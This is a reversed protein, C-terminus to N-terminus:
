STLKQGTVIHSESEYDTILLLGDGTQVVFDGTHFVEIVDGPKTNTFKMRQDFPQAKWIMIKKQNLFTFAGPYPKTLARVFNHLTITSQSWDILGMEPTRKPYYSPDGTQPTLKYDGSLLKPIWQLLVKQTVMANKYYLTRCDDWANIDFTEHYFIDGDDIGPRILFYHMIFQNKGEILSWNIPCRGRGKPLPESSGHVGVAGIKLTKLLEESFLRAWGGQILLDFQHTEFFKQDEPDKLNYSKAHYIPINYERALDDFSMYGSVGRKQAKDPDLTVFYSFRVGNKLLHKVLQWGVEHCGVMVLNAQTTNNVNM